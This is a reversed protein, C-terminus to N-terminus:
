YIRLSWIGFVYKDKLIFVLNKFIYYFYTLYYIYKYICVTLQILIFYFYRYLYEMNKSFFVQIPSYHPQNFIKKVEFKKVAYMIIDKGENIFFHEMNEDFRVFELMFKSRFFEKAGYLSPDLDKKTNNGGFIGGFTSEQFTFDMKYIVNDMIFYFFDPDKNDIEFFTADLKIKVTKFTNQLKLDVQSLFMENKETKYSM